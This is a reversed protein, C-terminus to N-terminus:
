RKGGAPRSVSYMHLEGVGLVFCMHFGALGLVFLAREESIVVELHEGAPHGTGCAGALLSREDGPGSPGERIIHASQSPQGPGLVLSM